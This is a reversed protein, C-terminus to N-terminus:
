SIAIWFFYLVVLGAFAGVIAYGWARWDIPGPASEAHGHDDDSLVTHSDMHTAADHHAVEDAPDLGAGPTGPEGVESPAPREETYGEPTGAPTDSKPEDTM